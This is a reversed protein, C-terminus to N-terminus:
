PITTEARIGRLEELRSHLWGTLASELEEQTGCRYFDDVTEGTQTLPIHLCPVRDGRCEGPVLDILVCEACPRLSPDVGPHLCTPSDEFVFLPRWLGRSSGAYGGRQVFELERQLVDVLNRKDRAV